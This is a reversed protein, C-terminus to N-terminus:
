GEEELLQRLEELEKEAQERERRLRRLEEEISRTKEKEKLLREYFDVKNKLDAKESIGGRIRDAGANLVFSAGLKLRWSPYNPLDLNNLFTVQSATEDKDSSARIDMGLDFNVWWRPKFRISPTVYVFDERSLALSDPQNIFTNGWVELNLDFLDTPYIFGLGYQLSSANNGATFETVTGDLATRTLIVKGADNYNYWGLNFHFSIDRHTLFPDNYYSFLAKLGFELSGATYNEFPYNVDDGTPFRFSAQGGLNIRNNLVSFSGAKVDLFLDGPTNYENAKHVDQYIRTTFTADFHEAIGYTLMANSQVNWFNVVRFDAPKSQGLFDGVKTFFGMDTRFDLRRPNLTSASQVNLLSKSGNNGIGQGFLGLPLLMVLGLFLAFGKSM